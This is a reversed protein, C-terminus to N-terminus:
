MKGRSYGPTLVWLFVPIHWRVPHTKIEQVFYSFMPGGAHTGNQVGFHDRFM